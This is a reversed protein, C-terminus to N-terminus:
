EKKSTKNAETSLDANEKAFDEDSLILEDYIQEQVKVASKYISPRTAKPDYIISKKESQVPRVKRVFLKDRKKYISGSEVSNVIQELTFHYHKKDLLNVSCKPKISINLDSLSVNRDSINTIWFEQGNEVM